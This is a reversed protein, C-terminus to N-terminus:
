GGSPQLCRCRRLRAGRSSHTSSFRSRRSRTRRIRMRLWPRRPYQGDPPAHPPAHPSARGRRPANGSQVGIQSDPWRVASAVADGHSHHVSNAACCRPVQQCHSLLAASASGGVAAGSPRVCRRAPAARRRACTPERRGVSWPRTISIALPGVPSPRALDTRNPPACGPGQQRLEGVLNSFKTDLGIAVERVGM